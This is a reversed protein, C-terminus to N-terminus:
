VDLCLFNFTIAKRLIPKPLIIQKEVQNRQYILHKASFLWIWMHCNHLNEEFILGTVKYLLTHSVWSIEVFTYSRKIFTYCQKSNSSKLSNPILYM